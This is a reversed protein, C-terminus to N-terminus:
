SEANIEEILLGADSANLTLSFDGLEPDFPRVALEIILSQGLSSPRVTVTLTDVRDDRLIEARIQGALEQLSRTTVGRNVYTVAAIGYTGDDPLSGRPTDLRRVIAEALARTTFGDVELANPDVDRACSLDRGYGFPEEPFTVIQTLAAIEGAIFTKVLESM